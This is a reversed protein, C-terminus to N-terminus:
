SEKKHFTDFYAICIIVAIGLIVAIKGNSTPGNASSALGFNHAFAAGAMLGIITIASDTNGEGALVLQRLPCGGLLACGFGVLLIGLFDWLGDTHAVPQDVIGLTFYSGSTVTSLILNAILASLLIAIFGFLLKWERFLIVDRIGGGAQTFYIFSPAAVLLILLVLKIGLFLKGELPPLKYTRKLSYGKNLFFVGAAIGAAFGILGFVANLDGDALRLIM